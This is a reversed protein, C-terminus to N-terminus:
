WKFYRWFFTRILRVPYKSFCYWTRLVARAVRDLEGPYAPFNDAVGLMTALVYTFHTCNNYVLDYGKGHFRGSMLEELVEYLRREDVRTHGILIRQRIRWNHVDATAPAHFVIGGPNSGYMFERRHVEIGTHFMGYKGLNGFGIYRQRQGTGIPLLIDYVSLYVPHLDHNSDSRLAGHKMTLCSLGNNVLKGAAM